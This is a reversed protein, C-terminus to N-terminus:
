KLRGLIEKRYPDINDPVVTLYYCGNCAKNESRRGELHLKQFQRIRNGNWIDKLSQANVDGIVALRAWDEQCSSVAGDWNIGLSYFPLPCVIKDTLPDGDYTTSKYGLTMDKLEPTSWGHLNELGIYDCRDEWDAYFKEIEFASLRQQIIKIYIKLNDRRNYLDLVNARLREYDIRVRSRSFYGEDTVHEVSIAINDLGNDVVKQNLEPSLMSGNTKTWIKQVAKSDRLYGLMDAFRPHLMSEGDRFLHANVIHGGFEALDDVIKKWLVFPMYGVPRKIKKILADDGTPCMECRFNCVNTPELYVVLPHDLPIVEQLKMRTKTRLSAGNIRMTGVM